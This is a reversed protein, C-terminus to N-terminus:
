DEWGCLTLGRQKAAERTTSIIEHKCNNLGRCNKVLHFKEANPSDCIYITDARRSAAGFTLTMLLLLGITKM